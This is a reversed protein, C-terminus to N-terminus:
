GAEYRFSSATLEAMRKNMDKIEEMVEKYTKGQLSSLFMGAESEDRFIVGGLINPVLYYVGGKSDVEKSMEWKYIEDKMM